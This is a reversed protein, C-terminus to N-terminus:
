PMNNDYDLNFATSVKNGPVASKKRHMGIAITQQGTESDHLPM